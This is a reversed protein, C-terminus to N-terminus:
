ARGAAWSPLYKMASRPAAEDFANIVGADLAERIYRSITAKNREEVAFRLRLSGNTLYQGQVYRLCAHWYCARVRDEKAMASLPRPGFLTIRTFGPPVDFRPAPLHAIEIHTLVKDIGSGREECLDLRRMLSALTNNRSKPPTDLFRGTDVLPEGPNTIEIWGDFVEVMPGAGTVTFDQHILANAILERVAVEPYDALKHQIAGRLVERAPLVTMIRGIVDNFASAYGRPEPLERETDVRSTGRYVIVRLEKRAVSPFDRLRNALLVAGLNTVNWGGAPCPEVLADAQLAMLIRQHGDPLPLKLLRFYTPYDLLRLVEAADLREAACGREFATHEFLRWLAREKEPFGKLPKKYSGIRIHEVGKFAVPLHSAAAIELLVVPEGDVTLEHFTFDIHPALLHHLWSELAENGVKTERPSFRTGVITHDEDRVGWVLYGSPKGVLAAANSLASVYEGIAEPQDNGVKLELWETERPLKCLERVLGELYAPSRPATTM